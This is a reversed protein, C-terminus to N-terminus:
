NEASRSPRNKSNPYKGFRAQKMCGYLFPKRARYINLRYHSSLSAPLGKNFRKIDEETIEGVSMGKFFPIFYNQSYSRYPHFTGPAFDGKTIEAKKEDLWRTVAKEFLAQKITPTKYTVPDFHPNQNIQHFTKM